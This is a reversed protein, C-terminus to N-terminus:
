EKIIIFAGSFLLPLESSIALAALSPNQELKSMPEASEQLEFIHVLFGSKGGSFGRPNQQFHRYCKKDFLAIIIIYNLSFTRKLCYFISPLLM